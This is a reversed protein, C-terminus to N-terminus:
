NDSRRENEIISIVKKTCDEIDDNTVVYNYENVHTMENEYELMRKKISEHNDGTEKSRKKLRELFIYINTM